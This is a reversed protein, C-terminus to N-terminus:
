DELRDSGDMLFAEGMLPEVQLAKQDAGVPSLDAQKVAVSSSDVVESSIDDRQSADEVLDEGATRGRRALTLGGM